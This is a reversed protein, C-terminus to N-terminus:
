CVMVIVSNDEAVSVLKTHKIYLKGATYNYGLHSIRLESFLDVIKIIKDCNNYIHLHLNEVVPITSM